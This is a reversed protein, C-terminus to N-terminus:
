AITAGPVSPDVYIQATSIGFGFVFEKVTTMASFDSVPAIGGATESAIYAMGNAVTAGMIIPGEYVIAGYADGSAGTLVIAFQTTSELTTLDADAKWWKSDSTKLYCGMGATMTEGFQVVRVKTTSSGVAVNAATVTLDAM